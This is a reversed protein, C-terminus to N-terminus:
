SKESLPKPWYGEFCVPQFLKRVLLLGKQANLGLLVM